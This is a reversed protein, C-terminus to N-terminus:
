EETCDSTKLYSFSISPRWPLPDKSLIYENPASPDPKLTPTKWVFYASFDYNVIHEIEDIKLIYGWFRAQICDPEQSIPGVNAASNDEEM